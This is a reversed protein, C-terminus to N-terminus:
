WSRCEASNDCVSGAHNNRRLRYSRPPNQARRDTVSCPLDVHCLAGPPLPERRCHSVWPASNDAGSVRHTSIPRLCPNQHASILPIQGQALSERKRKRRKIQVKFNFEFATTSKNNEILYMIQVYWYQLFNIQM